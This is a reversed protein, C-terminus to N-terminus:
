FTGSNNRPNGDSCLLCPDEHCEGTVPDLPSWISCEQLTVIYGGPPLPEGGGPGGCPDGSVECLCGFAECNGQGQSNFDKTVCNGNETIERGDSRRVIASCSGGSPNRCDGALQAGDDVNPCNFDSGEAARGAGLDRDFVIEARHGSGDLRWLTARLPIWPM